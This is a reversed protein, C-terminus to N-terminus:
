SPWRIELRFLQEEVDADDDVLKFGNKELVRRSAVNEREVGGALSTIEPQSRCWVVFAEVLETALGTGWFSEALLYGLRAEIGDGRPTESEFLIVLGAPEGTSKNIALLTVGESDRESIWSVARTLTYGGQWSEPLSRTVPETMMTTVVQALTRGLLERMSFSHWEAVLLRGSEFTCEVLPM